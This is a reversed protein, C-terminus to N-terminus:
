NSFFIGRVLSARQRHVQPYDFIEHQEYPTLYKMYSKLVSQPRMPRPLDPGAPPRKSDTSASISDQRGPMTPRSGATSPPENARQQVAASRFRQDAVSSNTTAPVDSLQDAAAAAGGVTQSVPPPLRHSPM